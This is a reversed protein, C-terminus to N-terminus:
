LLGSRKRAAEIKMEKSVHGYRNLTTSIDSHGLDSQLTKIDVGQQLSLMAFSHRMSHWPIDPLNAAKLAGKFARTFNRPQIYNGSENTFVLGDSLMAELDTANYCQAKYEQKKIQKYDKLAITVEEPMVIVRNQSSDTKLDRIVHKSGVKVLQQILKISSEEENFDKWRLGLLEGRRIGTHLETLYAAYYRKYHIHSKVVELFKRIQNIDLTQM